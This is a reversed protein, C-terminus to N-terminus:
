KLKTQPSLILFNTDLPDLEAKLTAIFKEGYKTYYPIINDFREQLINNPFLKQKIKSIRRLSVDYKEKELKLLKKELKQLSNLHKKSESSISNKMSNDKVKESISEYINIM